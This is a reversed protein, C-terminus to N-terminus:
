KPFLYEINALIPLSIQAPATKIVDHKIDMRLNNQLNKYFYTNIVNVVHHLFEIGFLIASFTIATKYRASSIDEIITGQLFPVLFNMVAVLLTIGFFGMFLKMHKKYYKMVKAINKYGKLKYEKYTIM